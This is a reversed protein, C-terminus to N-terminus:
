SNKSMSNNRRKIRDDSSFNVVACHAKVEASKSKGIFDRLREINVCLDSSDGARIKDAAARLHDRFNIAVKSKPPETNRSIWRAAATEAIDIEATVNV